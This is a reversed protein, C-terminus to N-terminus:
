ARPGRERDERYPLSALHLLLFAGAILICVAFLASGSDGLWMGAGSSLAIVVYPAVPPDERRARLIFMAATAVFLAVSVLDFMSAM